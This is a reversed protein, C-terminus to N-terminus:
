LDQYPMVMLFCKKNKSKQRAAAGSAKRTKKHDSLNILDIRAGCKRFLTQYKKAKEYSVNSKVTIVKGCFLREIARKEVKLYKSFLAKVEEETKDDDLQGRFVLRYRGDKNESVM